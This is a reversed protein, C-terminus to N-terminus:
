LILATGNEPVRIVFPKEEGNRRAEALADDITLGKGAVRTQDQSIAVWMGAPIGSLLEQNFTKIATM